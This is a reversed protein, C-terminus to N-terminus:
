LICKITFILSIWFLTILINNLFLKMNIRHLKLFLYFKCAIFCAKEKILFINRIKVLSEINKYSNKHNNYCFNLKMSNINLYNMKEM